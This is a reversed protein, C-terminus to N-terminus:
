GGGGIGLNDRVSFVGARVERRPAGKWFFGVLPDTGGKRKALWIRNAARSLLMCVFLGDV